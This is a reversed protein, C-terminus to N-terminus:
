GMNTAGLERLLHVQALVAVCATEVRLPAPGIHVSRFGLKTFADLEYDVFGGEPGVAVVVRDTPTIRVDAISREAGPHAILRVSADAFTGPAADEVFAKFLPAVEVHPELTWRGQMMGDHLLPRYGEPRLLRSTLYPKGVRWTRLLVLRNIGIATVEPLLKALSKPRCIALVLDLAPRPPTRQEFSCELQIRDSEVSVVQAYGPPGNLLGVRLRQGPKARLVGYVHAARHGTLVFRTRELRDEEQLLILNM